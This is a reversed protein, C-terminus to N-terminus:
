RSKLRKGIERLTKVDEQHISGDPLPGVNLLLNANKDRAEELMKMVEDPTVHDAGDLWGWLAGKPAKPSHKQMTRCIEMPKNSRNKMASDIQPLEPAMFDELEPYLGSKYCILGQPQLQRIRAYLEPVRFLSKDGSLPIGIGDLWVGALPGYKSCLESVGDYIYTVYKNFDYQDRPAYFSDPTDYAPRVAKNKWDWPAPGHPHRWDFGHEYFVFFGLGRDRCALALEAVLDRRAPSNISNFDTAKTDWLCFSDCHKCVLTIYKMGAEEALAAIESANFKDATFRDRLKAYEAIPIRDHFQAWEGRGTLSYLGYHIFLGFKAAKFWALAAERPNRRYEAEYGKLYSPVTGAQRAELLRGIEKMRKVSLEPLLGTKDPGVDLLYNAHRENCLKVAAVVEEASMLKTEDRKENWFWGPGLKDCVEAANTNGAPILEEIMKGKYVPLEYGYIDTHKFNHSNNALVICNPQLSKMHDKIQLWDKGTYKNGQQDIWIMDIPGYKTLLETFQKKIFGTYDGEAEPPLGHLDPKGEPLTNGYKGAYNGPMCYYLGAKVGHTRCADVFERVIDGKGQKYNKFATMDHTTYESDWLCWGGTHKVTLVAYKMGAAKAANIWQGCDLKDPAFTAPDEHGNAWEQNNFTAINFHLFLGFKWQLFEEQLQVLPRAEGAFGNLALLAWAIMINRKM